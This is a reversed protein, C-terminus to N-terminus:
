TLYPYVQTIDTFVQDAQNFNESETERSPIVYCVMGAKKAAQAGVAADELVLCHDPEVDLLSATRLYIDPAPKGYKVDDGSVLTTFYKRLKLGDLVAEIEDLHSGSAVALVYNKQFTKEVFEIVGKQPIIKQSVLKIYASQKQKSFEALSIPINWKERMDALADKDSIGLYQKNEKLSLHHEYRELITNYAKIHSPESDVMLGDMDFIIAKILM